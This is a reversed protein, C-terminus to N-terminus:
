KLEAAGGAKILALLVTEAQERSIGEKIAVPVSDVLAKSEKLGLGTQIRVEKIVAIKSSGYNLLIVDFEDKEVKPEPKPEVKPKTLELAELFGAPVEADIASQSVARQEVYANAEEESNFSKRTGDAWKVMVSYRSYMQKTEPHVVYGAQNIRKMTPAQDIKTLTM